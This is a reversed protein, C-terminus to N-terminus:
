IKLNTKVFNQFLELSVATDVHGGNRKIFPTTQLCHYDLGIGQSLYCYTDDERAQFIELVKTGPKSFILNTLGAGHAAIITQANAFLLKQDEVSMDELHYRKFGLPELYKFIEEENTIKRCSAKQRSIFIKESFQPNPNEEQNKPMLHERLYNIVWHPTYCSRSVFSPVILEDAEIYTSPGAEIVKRLDVGMLALTTKQFSYEMRPLYIWDYQTDKLLALKPLIELMWHYYNRYGEQALVVVKGPLHQIQATNKLDLSKKGTKYLSWPWLLESILYKEKALVYGYDSFVRGKPIHLVFTQPILPAEWTSSKSSAIPFRKFALKIPKHIVQYSIKPDIKKLKQLSIITPPSQEALIPSCLMVFMLFFRM